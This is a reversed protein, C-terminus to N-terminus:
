IPPDSARHDEIWKRPAQDFHRKRRINIAAPKTRAPRVKRRKPGTREEKFRSPCAKCQQSPEGGHSHGVWRRDHVPSIWHWDPHGTRAIDVSQVIEHRHLKWM